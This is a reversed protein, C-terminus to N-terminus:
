PVIVSYSQMYEFLTVKIQELKKEFLQVTKRLQVGGRETYEPACKIINITDDIDKWLADLVKIDDRTFIYREGKELAYSENWIHIRDGRGVYFESLKLPTSPRVEDCLIDDFKSLICWYFWELSRQAYPYITRYVKHTKNFRSLVGTMFSTIKAYLPAIRDALDKHYAIREQVDM